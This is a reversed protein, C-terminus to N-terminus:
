VAATGDAAPVPSEQGAGVVEHPSKYDLEQGSETKVIVESTPIIGGCMIIEGHLYGKLDWPLNRISEENFPVEVLLGGAGATLMRWGKLQAKFLNFFYVENDIKDESGKRGPFVKTVKAAELASDRVDQRLFTLVEFWEQSEDWEPPTIRKTPIAQGAGPTMIVPM